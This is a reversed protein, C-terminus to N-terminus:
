LCQLAAMAGERQDMVLIAPAMFSSQGAIHGTM